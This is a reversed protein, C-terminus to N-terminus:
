TGTNDVTDSDGTSNTDETSGSGDISGTDDIPTSDAPKEKKPLPSNRVFFGIEELTQLNDKFAVKCAAALAAMWKRLTKFDKDREIGIKQCEGAIKEYKSRKTQYEQLQTLDAQLLEPTFGFPLIIAAIDINELATNYFHTAEEIFGAITRKRLGNLGLEAQTPTDDVLERRLRIIQGAYKSSIDSYM